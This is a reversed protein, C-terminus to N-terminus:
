LNIYLMYDNKYGTIVQWIRYGIIVQWKVKYIVLCYLSMKFIYQIIVLQYFIYCITYINHICFLLMSHLSHDLRNYCAVNVDTTMYCLIYFNISSNTTWIKYLNTQVTCDAKWPLLSQKGCGQLLFKDFKFEVQALISFIKSAAFM